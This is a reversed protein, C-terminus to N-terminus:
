RTIITPELVFVVDTDSHQYNTSEFLKGLIPISSLLPIKSLNKTEQRRLLGGLVIAEGSQTVVETSVRSTKLAPVVFGNLTVGNAFDLDSVEPTIKTDISGNGMVTPLVDLKVGYPKFIISTQGLGSSFPVPLEGGVLFSASQGPLTVLDPSSLLRGHGQTILLNLTPALLTTRFFQGVSLPSAANGSLGGELAIFTPNGYNVTTSVAGGSQPTQTLQGGQLNIGLTNQFTKDVELIYVKVDIQSNTETTLRDILKGSAALYPGALSQARELVEQANSRNHVRGSVIVNGQGDPDFHLDSGPLQAIRQQMSGLPQSVVVANIIKSEKSGIKIGSFRNLMDQLQNFATQDPVTGRVVLNDGFSLIQIDPLNIASRVVRAIDDVSQETVTVEYSVHRGNEWVLVTTHGPTKGNIVIQSTGIPVVGAIRSDGVAVRTLGDANVVISHGSQVSLVSIPDAALSPSVSGLFGLLATGAAIGIHPTRKSV